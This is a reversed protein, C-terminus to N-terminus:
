QLGLHYLREFSKEPPFTKAVARCQEALGSAAYAKEVASAYEKPTADPSQAMWPEPLIETMGDCTSGIPIVGSAMSELIVNSAPDYRTPLMLVSSRCFVDRPDAMFGKFVVRSEIGLRLALRQYRSWRSDSGCVLLKWDPLHVLSLLVKQLGKRAFNNGLFLLTKDRCESERFYHTDVGTRILVIKNEDIGYDRLVDRRAQESNVVVWRAEMMIRRDIRWELEDALSWGNERMWRRHSGGGARYVTPNGARVFGFRIPEKATRSLYRDLAFGKWVRGRARLPHNKIVVGQIPDREEVCCVEFAVGKKLLFRAFGHVFRETGGHTGFSRVMLQCRM